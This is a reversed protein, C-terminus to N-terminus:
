SSLLFIVSKHGVTYKLPQKFQTTKFLIKRPADCFFPPTEMSFSDDSDNKESTVDYKVTPQRDKDKRRQKKHRSKREGSTVDRKSSSNAQPDEQARLSTMLASDTNELLQHYSLIRASLETGRAVFGQIRFFLAKIIHHGQVSAGM